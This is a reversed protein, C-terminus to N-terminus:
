KWSAVFGQMTWKTTTAKKKKRKGWLIMKIWLSNESNKFGPKPGSTLIGSRREDGATGSGKEDEGEEESGRSATVWAAMVCCREVGVRVRPRAGDRASSRAQRGGGPLKPDAWAIESATCPSSSLAALCCKLYIVWRFSFVTFNCFADTNATPSNPHSHSSYLFSYECRPLVRRPLVLASFFSLNLSGTELKRRLSEEKGLGWNRAPTPTYCNLTMNGTPNTQTAKNIRGLNQM